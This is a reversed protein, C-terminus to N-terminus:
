RRAQEGISSGEGVALLETLGDPDDVAGTARYREFWARGQAEDFFYFADVIALNYLAGSADPDLELARLFAERAREPDGAYLRTIGFNNHSAASHPDAQLAASALEGAELFHDGRLVHYVKASNPTRVQDFERASEEWRGVADYHLALGTQLADPLAGKRARSAEIRAIAADHAGQEFQLKSWLSLAIHHDPHATLVRECFALALDSSDAAAYLQAIRHLVAPDEPAAALEERADIMADRWAAADFTEGRTSVTQNGRLAGSCGALTVLVVVGLTAAARHVLLARSTVDHRMADNPSGLHIM